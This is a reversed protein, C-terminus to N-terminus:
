PITVQEIYTGRCVKIKDGPQADDVASQITNYEWNPCDLGDNDVILMGDSNGSLLGVQPGVTALDTQSVGLAALNVEGLGFLATQLVSQPGSVGAAGDNPGDTPSPGPDASASGVGLVLMLCPLALFRRM